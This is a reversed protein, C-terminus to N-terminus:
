VTKTQLKHLYAIIDYKVWLVNKYGSSSFNTYYSQPIYIILILIDGFVFRKLGQLLKHNIIGSRKPNKIIIEIIHNMRTNNTSFITHHILFRKKKAFNCFIAKYGKEFM